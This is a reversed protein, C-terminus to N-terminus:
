KGQKQLLEKFVTPQLNTGRGDAMACQYCGDVEDEDYVLIFGTREAQKEPMKM